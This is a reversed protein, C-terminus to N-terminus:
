LNNERKFQDILKPVEREVFAYFDRTIRLRRAREGDEAIGKDALLRLGSETLARMAAYSAAADSSKILADDALQYAHGRGATPVRRVMGIKELMRMGTSVSGKSLGLADGLQALTQGPPDCILLWGLLKGFAPTVGMQALATGVEEAYRRDASHEM